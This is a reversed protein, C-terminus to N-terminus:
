RRPRWPQALTGRRNKPLDIILTEAISWDQLNIRLIELAKRRQTLIAVTLTNDEITRCVSFQRADAATSQLTYAARTWVRRKNIVDWIELGRHWGMIIHRGGNILHVKAKGSVRSDLPMTIEEILLPQVESSLDSDRRWTQPGVILVRVQDILQVTAYASLTSPPTEIFCRAWLDNVLSIWLQKVFTITHLHRNVRSVSLSLIVLIVDNGLGEFSSATTLM